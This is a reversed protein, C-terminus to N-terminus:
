RSLADRCTWPPITPTAHPGRFGRNVDTPVDEPTEDLIMAVLDEVPTRGLRSIEYIYGPVAMLASAVTADPECGPDKAGPDARELMTAPRGLYM